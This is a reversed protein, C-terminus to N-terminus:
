KNCAEQYVDELRRLIIGWDHKEVVTKRANRGLTTRLHRDHMLTSIAQAIAKGDRPPVLLGDYGHTVVDNIGPIDSGVIAKGCSMAELLSYPMGEKLSPFAFVSARQFMKLLDRRSLSGPLLFRGSLCAKEILAEIRPKMNGEGILTFVADTHQSSVIRAANVLYELGKEPVFRGAWVIMRDEERVSPRFFETDVANPVVKVKEVPCGYRTIEQLDSRTLCRVVTAKKFIWSAVGSLYGRQLLNMSRGREAIVGHVTVVTPIGLKSAIRIAQVTTLFLHSQCDVISPHLKRMLQALGFLYPYKGRPSSLPPYFNIGPLQFVTYRDTVRQTRTERSGGNWILSTVEYGKESLLVPYESAVEPYMWYAAILAIHTEIVCRM